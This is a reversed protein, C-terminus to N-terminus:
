ERPGSKEEIKVPEVPPTVVTEAPPTVVANADTAAEKMAKMIKEADAASISSNPDSILSSIDILNSGGNPDIPTMQLPIKRMPAPQFVIRSAYDGMTKLRTQAATVAPAGKLDADDVIQQYIQRAQDFNGIEEECLGLGLRAAAELSPLSPKREVAQAYAQRALDTQTQITNTTVGALRYQLEARLAEGRKILAMAAMNSNSEGDAFSKLNDAPQILRFSLDSGQAQAGILQAKNQAVSNIYTTLDLRKQTLEPNRVYIKWGIMAFCAAIILTGGVLWTKNASTWEPLHGLWDALENTKLDHRHQAKM